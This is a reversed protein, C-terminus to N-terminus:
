IDIFLLGKINGGAGTEQVRQIEQAFTNLISQCHRSDIQGEHLVHNVEYWKALMIVVVKKCVKVLCNLLSIIQYSKVVTYHVKSSKLFRVTKAM